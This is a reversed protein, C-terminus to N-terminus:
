ADPSPPRKKKTPPAAEAAAKNDSGAPGVFLVAKNNAMPKLDENARLGQFFSEASELKQHREQTSNLSYLNDLVGLLEQLEKIGVNEAGETDDSLMAFPDDGKKEAFSVMKLEEHFYKKFKLFTEIADELGKVQERLAEFIVFEESSIKGSKKNKLENFIQVFSRYAAFKGVLGDVHEVFAEMIKKNKEASDPKPEARLVGKFQNAKVNVQEIAAVNVFDAVNSFLHKLTQKDKDMAVLNNLSGKIGSLGSMLSSNSDSPLSELENLLSEVNKVANGLEVFNLTKKKANDSSNWKAVIDDLNLVGGSRNKKLFDLLPRADKIVDASKKLLALKLPLEAAAVNRLADDLEKRKSSIEKANEIFSTVMDGSLGLPQLVPAYSSKTFDVNSLESARETLQRLDLVRKKIDNLKLLEEEPNSEIAQEKGPVKKLGTSIAILKEFESKINKRDRNQMIDVLPVLKITTESFEVARMAVEFQDKSLEGAKSIVIRAQTIIEKVKDPEMGALMDSIPPENYDVTINNSFAEKMRKLEFVDSKLNKLDQEKLVLKEKLLEIKKLESESGFAKLMNLEDVILKIESQLGTAKEVLMGLETLVAIGDRRKIANIIAISARLAYLSLLTLGLGSSIKEYVLEVEKAFLRKETKLFDEAFPNTLADDIRKKTAENLDRLQEVRRIIEDLNIAQLDVNGFDLNFKSSADAQKEKNKKAAEPFSLRLSKLNFTLNFESFARDIDKMGRYLDISLNISGLGSEFSRLFDKYTSKFTPFDVSPLGEIKPFVVAALGPINPLIVSFREIKLSLSKFMELQRMAEKLENQLLAFKVDSLTTLSEFSLTLKGILDKLSTLKLTLGEIGGFEGLFNIIFSVDDFSIDGIEKLAISLKKLSGLSLGTFEPLALFKPLAVSTNKASFKAVNGLCVTFKKFKELNFKIEGLEIKYRGLLSFPDDEKEGAKELKRIKNELDAYKKLWEPFQIMLEKFGGFKKFEPYWSRIYLFDDLPFDVVNFKGFTNSFDATMSAFDKFFPDFDIAFVNLANKFPFGEPLGGVLGKLDIDGVKFGDFNAKLTQLRLIIRKMELADNVDFPKLKALSLSLTRIEVSMDHFKIILEPFTYKDFPPPIKNFFDWLGKIAKVVKNQNDRNLVAGENEMTKFLSGFMVDFGPFGFGQIKHLFKIAYEFAIPINEDSVIDLIEGLNIKISNITMDPFKLDFHMGRMKDFASRTSKFLDLIYDMSLSMSPNYPIGYNIKRKKAIRRLYQSPVLEELTDEIEPISLVLSKQVEELIGRKQDILVRQSHYLHENNKIYEDDLPDGQLTQLNAFTFYRDGAVFRKYGEQLAKLQEGEESAAKGDKNAEQVKEEIIKIKQFFKFKEEQSIPDASCLDVFEKILQGDKSKVSEAFAKMRVDDLVLMVDSVNAKKVCADLKTRADTDTSSFGSFINLYARRYRNIEEAVDLEELQKEIEAVAPIAVDILGKIESKISEKIKDLMEPPVKPVLHLTKNVEMISKKVQLIQKFFEEQQNKGNKEVNDSVLMFKNYNYNNTKDTPFYIQLSNLCELENPFAELHRTTEVLEKKINAITNDTDKDFVSLVTSPHTYFIRLMTDKIKDGSVLRAIKEKFQEDSPCCAEIKLYDRFDDQGPIEVGAVEIAKKLREEFQDRASEINKVVDEAQKFQPISSRDGGLDEQTKKAQAVGAKGVKIFEDAAVTLSRVNIAICTGWYAFYPVIQKYWRLKILKNEILSAKETYRAANDKEKEKLNRSIEAMKKALAVNYNKQSEELQRLSGKRGKEYGNVNLVLYKRLSEMDQHKEIHPLANLEYKTKFDEFAMSFDGALAKKMIRLEIETKEGCWWSGFEIEHKREELKKIDDSAPPPESELRNNIKGLEEKLKEVQESYSPDHKKAYNDIEKQALKRNKENKKDRKKSLRELRNHREQGDLKNIKLARANEAKGYLAPLFEAIRDRKKKAYYLGAGIIIVGGLVALGIPFAGAAVLSGAVIIMNIGTGLCTGGLLVAGSTAYKNVSPKETAVLKRVGVAFEAGVAADQLNLNTIVKIRKKDELIKDIKLICVPNLCTKFLNDAGVERDEKREKDEEVVLMEVVPAQLLEKLGEANITIKYDTSLQVAIDQFNLPKWIKQAQIQAEIIDSLIAKLNNIRGATLRESLGIFAATIAQDIMQEQEYAKKKAALDSAAKDSASKKEDLKVVSAM